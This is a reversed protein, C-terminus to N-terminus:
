SLVDELILAGIGLAIAGVIVDTSPPSSFISAQTPTLVPTPTSDDIPAGTSADITLPAPTPPPV